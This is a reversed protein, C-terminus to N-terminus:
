ILEFYHVIEKRYAELLQKLLPHNVDFSIANISRIPLIQPSTGTLFAADYNSLTEFPIDEKFVPIGMRACIEIIKGRVIGNLVMDDPATVLRDAKIFFLNSRSGETIHNLNDMLIVEFIEPSEIISNTYTRLEHNYVKANPHSREANYVVTNVGELYAQSDPYNHHVFYCYFNRNNQHINFVIKINGNRVGNRSIVLEIKEVLESYNLWVFQGVQKASNELRILHEKLFVPKSNMVRIVEYLSLGRRFFENRFESTDRLKSNHLYKYQSCEKM